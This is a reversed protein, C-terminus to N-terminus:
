RRGALSGTCFFIALFSDVNLGSKEPVIFFFLFVVETLFAGVLGRGPVCTGQGSSEDGFGDSRGDWRERSFGGMVTAATRWQAVLRRGSM